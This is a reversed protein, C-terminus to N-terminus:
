GPQYTLERKWRNGAYNSIVGRYHSIPKRNGRKNNIYFRRTAKNLIDAISILIDDSFLDNLLPAVTLFANIKPHYQNKQKLM